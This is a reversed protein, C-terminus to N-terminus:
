GAVGDQVIRITNHQDVTLIDAKGSGNIDCAAVALFGEKDAKSATLHSSATGKKGTFHNRGEAGSFGYTYNFNENAGGGAYGEPKWGAGDAGELIDTYSGHEAWYAKEAAYIASLNVYAEARKAKGLFRFFSPVSVMALFAIIAVVIMLEILSFGTRKM